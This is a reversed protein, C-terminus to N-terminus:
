NPKWCGHFGFPVRHPIEITAIPGHDIKTSDLVLLDSRNEQSRYVLSLLYGEGEHSGAKPVFIAENVVDNDPVTFIRKNKTKYDIHVIANWTESSGSDNLKGAFFGHQYKQGCFREDMRPMEGRTSDVVEKEVVLNLPDLTWRILRTPFDDEQGQFPTADDPITDAVIADLIVKENEEYANMFHFAFCSETKIWKVELSGDRPVLGFRAGLESEWAIPSLGKAAREMSITLPFLSFIIYNETIAFDHIMSHYPTPIKRTEIIEGTSNARFFVLERSVGFVNSYFLLDGTKPDIKPHATMARDLKGDFNWPGITELNEPNIEIPFGAEFLALLKGGHWIVNTNAVNGSRDQVSPDKWRNVMGGFLSRGSERELEFRETRVWKNYYRIRKDMFEFAHIMGDGDFLHHRENLVHQPNPGNRFFTGRLDTPIEGTVVLEYIEGENMWPEFVGQLSPIKITPRKM